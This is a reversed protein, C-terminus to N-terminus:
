RRYLSATAFVVVALLAVLTALTDVLMHLAVIGALTM